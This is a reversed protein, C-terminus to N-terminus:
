VKLERPQGVVVHKNNYQQRLIRRAMEPTRAMVTTDVINTYGTQQLKIKVVYTKMKTKVPKIENYRMAQNFKEKYEHLFEQARM